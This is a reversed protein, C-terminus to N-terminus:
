RLLSLSIKMALINLIQIMTTSKGSHIFVDTVGAVKDVIDFFHQELYICQLLAKTHREIDAKLYM